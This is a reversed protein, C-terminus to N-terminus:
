RAYPAVMEDTVAGAVADDIANAVLESALAIEDTSIVLPPALELVNGGVCHIIAGLQWTRYAVKRALHPAATRKTQDAVLDIGIALGRGRIQGIFAAGPRGSDAYANLLGILQSGRIAAQEPLREEIVTHLVARGAATCIPNGATSLLASATPADLLEAPGVAASLPLSGGLTKGFTVVDPAIGDHEFAHLLGSRGLGVKVEDCILL